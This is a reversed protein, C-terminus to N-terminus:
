ALIYMNSIPSKLHLVQHVNSKGLQWTINPELMGSFLSINYRTTKAGPTNSFQQQRWVKDCKEQTMKLWGRFKKNATSIMQIKHLNCKNCPNCQHHLLKKSYVTTASHRQASHFDLLHTKPCARAIMVYLVGTLAVLQTQRTALFESSWGFFTEIGLLDM